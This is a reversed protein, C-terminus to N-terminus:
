GSRPPTGRRSRSRASGAPPRRSSRPGRSRCCRPAARRAAARRADSAPSRDGPALGARRRAPRQGEDVHRSLLPHGEGVLVADEGVEVAQVVPPQLRRAPAAVPVARRLEDGLAAVPDDVLHLLGPQAAAAAGAERGAHLPGEHRLLRVPPRVVEHHVGVLGLGAGALVAVDQPVVRVGQRLAAQEGADRHAGVGAVDVHAALVVVLVEHHLRRDVLAVGGPQEAGVGAAAAPVEVEVDMAAGAGIDAALFRRQDLRQLALLAHRPQLRGERRRDAEVARRGRHVVDLRDGHHRGDQPAAGGPERAEPPRLVRAGLDEADLAMHLLGAVHLLLHAIGSRSSISRCAPPTRPPQSLRSQTIGPPEEVGSIGFSTHSVTRISKSASRSCLVPRPVAPTMTMSLDVSRMLAM